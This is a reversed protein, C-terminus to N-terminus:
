NQLCVMSLESPARGFRRRFATSFSSVHRYGCRFATEKISLGENEILNRAMDLRIETIHAFLPRGFVLPFKAKLSSESMGVATALEALRYERGPDSVILDHINIMKTRDAASLGSRGGLWDEDDTFFFRALLEMALSEAALQGAVTAGPPDRLLPITRSTELYYPFREVRSTRLVQRVRQALPSDALREPFVRLHVTKVKQGEDYFGHLVATDSIAIMMAQGSASYTQRTGDGFSIEGRGNGSAVTINLSAQAEAKLEFTRQVDLESYALTIGDRLAYFRVRGRFEAVGTDSNANVVDLGKVESWEVTTLDNLESASFSSDINATNKSYSAM